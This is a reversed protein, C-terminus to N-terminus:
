RLRRAYSRFIQSLIVAAAIAGIVPLSILVAGLVLVLLAVTIAGLGLGAMILAIPGPKGITFGRGERASFSVWIRSGDGARNGAPRRYAQGPPIIEPEARPRVPEDTSREDM